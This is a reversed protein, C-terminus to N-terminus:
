QFIQILDHAEKSSLEEVQKGHKELVEKELAEYNGICETLLSIQKASAPKSNSHNYNKPKNSLVDKSQAHMLEKQNICEDSVYQKQVALSSKVKQLNLHANQRAGEIIFVSDTCDQSASNAVGFTKFRTDNIACETEVIATLDNHEMPFQTITELIFDNNNKMTLEKNFTIFTHISLSDLYM